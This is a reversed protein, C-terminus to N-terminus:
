VQTEQGLPKEQHWAALVRAKFITSNLSHHNHTQWWSYTDVLFFSAM